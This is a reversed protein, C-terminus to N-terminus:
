EKVAEVLFNWVLNERYVSDREKRIEKIIGSTGNCRKEIDSLLSKVVAAGSEGREIRRIFALHYGRIEDLSLYKTALEGFVIQRERDGEPFTLLAAQADRTEKLLSAIKQLDAIEEEIELILLDMRSLKFMGIHPPIEKSMWKRYIAKRGEEFVDSYDYGLSGLIEFTLSSATVMRRSPNKFKQPRGRTM